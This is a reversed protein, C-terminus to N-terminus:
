SARHRGEHAFQRDRSARRQDVHQGRRRHDACFQWGFHLFQSHPPGLRFQHAHRQRAHHAGAYTNNGSMNDLAGGNSLGTGNLTLPVAAFSIGGQLQLAGGSNVTARSSNPSLANANQINLAGGNITTVGTYTNNGTLTLVGTGVKTLSLAYDPYTYLLLGGYTTSTNDSGVTLTVAGYGSDQIAGGNGSLNAISLNYANMNLTGGNM